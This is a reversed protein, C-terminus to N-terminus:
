PALFSSKNMAWLFVILSSTSLLLLELQINENGEKPLLDDYPQYYRVFGPLRRPKKGAKEAEQGELTQKARPDLLQGATVDKAFDWVSKLVDEEGSEAEIWSSKLGQVFDDVASAM